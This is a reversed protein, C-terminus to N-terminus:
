MKSDVVSWIAKLHYSSLLPGLGMKFNQSIVQGPISGTVDQVGPSFEVVPGSTATVM